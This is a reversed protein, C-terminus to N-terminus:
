GANRGTVVALVEPGADHPLKENSGRDQRQDVRVDRCAPMALNRRSIRASSTKANANRLPGRM